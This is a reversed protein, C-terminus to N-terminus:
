HNKKKQTIGKYVPCKSWDVKWSGLEDKLRVGCEEQHHCHFGRLRKAGTEVVVYELNGAITSGYKECHSEFPKVRVRSMNKGGSEGAFGAAKNNYNVGSVTTM